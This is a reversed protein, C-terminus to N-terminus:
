KISKPKSPHIPLLTLDFQVQLVRNGQTVNSLFRRRHESGSPIPFNSRVRVVAIGINFCIHIPLHSICNKAPTRPTRM